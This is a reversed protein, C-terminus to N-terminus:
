AVASLALGLATASLALVLIYAGVTAQWSLRRLRVALGDRPRARTEAQSVDRGLLLDGLRTSAGDYFGVKSDFRQPNAYTGFLMDWVMLEGYNRAHRGREHHLAHVEPRAILYGLWRPTALNAHSFLSVLGALVGALAAAFPDLGVLVTMAFSGVFTFGVMDLPHFYLAGYIDMREAAHHMQHLTRWLFDSRHLSRHWWYGILQATGYGLPVALGLPLGSADILRNGAMWDAWLFPAYSAVAFYLTASLFGTLWWLRPRYFRRAPMLWDLVVFVAFGAALIANYINFM